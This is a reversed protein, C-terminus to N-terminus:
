GLSESIGRPISDLVDPEFNQIERKIKAPLISFRNGDEIQLGGDKDKIAFQGTFLDQDMDDSSQGQADDPESLELDSAM